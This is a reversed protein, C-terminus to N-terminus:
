GKVLWGGRKSIIGRRLWDHLQKVRKSGLSSMFENLGQSAREGSFFEKEHETQLAYKKKKDKIKAKKLTKKLFLWKIM